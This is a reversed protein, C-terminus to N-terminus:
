GDHNEVKYIIADQGGALFARFHREGSLFAVEELITGGPTERTVVGEIRAGPLLTDIYRKSALLRQVKNGRGTSRDFLEQQTLRELRYDEPRERVAQEVVEHHFLRGM